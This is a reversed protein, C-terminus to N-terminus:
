KLYSECTWRFSRSCYWQRALRAEHSSRNWKLGLGPIRLLDLLGPPLDKELENLQSLKDTKVLERIKKALDKGIGSFDTLPKGEAILEAMSGIARAANRYARVRFSNAGRIERLDAVSKINLHCEIPLIGDASVTQRAHLFM